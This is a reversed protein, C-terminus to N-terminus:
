SPKLDSLACIMKKATSYFSFDLIGNLRKPLRLRSAAPNVPNRARPRHDSVFGSLVAPMTQQHSLASQPISVALPIAVCFLWRFHDRARNRICHYNSIVFYHWNPSTSPAAFTEVVGEIESDLAKALHHNPRMKM